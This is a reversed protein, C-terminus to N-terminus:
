GATAGRQPLLKRLLFYVAASVIAWSAVDILFKLNLIGESFIDYDFGILSHVVKVVVYTIILSIFTTRKSHM